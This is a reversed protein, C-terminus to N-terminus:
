RSRGQHDCDDFFKKPSAPQGAPDFFLIEEGDIGSLDGPFGDEDGGGEEGGGVDAPDGAEEAADEPAPVVAFGAVDPGDGPRM